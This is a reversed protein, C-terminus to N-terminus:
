DEAGDVNPVEFLQQQLRGRIADLADILVDLPTLKDRPLGRPANARLRNKEIFSVITRLDEVVARIATRESDLLDRYTLLRLALQRVDECREAARPWSGHRIANRAEIALFFAKECTDGMINTRINTLLDRMEQRARKVQKRLAEQARTNLRLTEQVTWLTLTFGIVGVSLGLVSAHNGFSNAFPKTQEFFIFSLLIVTLLIGFGVYLIVHVYKM